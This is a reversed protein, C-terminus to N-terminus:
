SRPSKTRLGGILAAGRSGAPPSGDGLGGTTKCVWGLGKEAVKAHVTFIYSCLLINKKESLTM